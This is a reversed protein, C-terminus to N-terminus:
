STICNFLSDSTIDQPAPLQVLFAHDHKCAYIHVLSLILTTQTARIRQNALYLITYSLASDCLSFYTAYLSLIPAFFCRIGNLPILRRRVLGNFPLKENGFM